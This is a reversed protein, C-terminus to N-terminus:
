QIGRVRQQFNFSVNGLWDENKFEGRYVNGQARLWTPCFQNNETSAYIYAGFTSVRLSNTMDYSLKIHANFNLNKTDNREKLVTGPPNFVNGIRKEGLEVATPKDYPYTPNMADASYFLMQSDFIDDNKFSSGFVGFDETLTISHRRPSM